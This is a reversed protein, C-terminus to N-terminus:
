QKILRVWQKGNETTEETLEVKFNAKSKEIIEIKNNSFDGPYRPYEIVRVPKNNKLFVILNIDDRSEIGFHEISTLDIKNDKGVQETWSYPTLIILSEWDFKMISEFRIIEKGSIIEKKLLELHEKDNSVKNNGNQECSFFLISSFIYILLKFKMETNYQFLNVM